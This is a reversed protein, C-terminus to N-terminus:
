YKYGIQPSIRLRKGEACDDNYQHHCFDEDLNEEADSGEQLAATGHLIRIIFVFLVDPLLIGIFSITGNARHMATPNTMAAPQMVVVVLCASFLVEAVILIVGMTVVGCIPTFLVVLVVVLLVEIERRFPDSLTDTLPIDFGAFRVTM